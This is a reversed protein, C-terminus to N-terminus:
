VELVCNIVMRYDSITPACGAHIQNSDFIVATGKRPSVTQQKTLHNVRDGTYYENFLVTDGDSNNVYYLLTTKGIAEAKDDKNKFFGDIHPYQTTIGSTQLLLNAKIRYFSKIKKGTKEEFAVMLPSIYKFLESKIQRDMVFVHRLQIHEKYPEDMQIFNDLPEASVSYNNFSWPFEQGTLLSEISDQYILPLFNNFVQPQM